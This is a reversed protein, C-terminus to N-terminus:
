SGSCPRVMWELRKSRRFAPIVVDPTLGEKAIVDIGNHRQRGLIQGFQPSKLENTFLANIVTTEMVRSFPEMQHKIFNKIRVHSQPLQGGGALHVHLDIWCRTLLLQSSM